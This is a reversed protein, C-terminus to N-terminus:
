CGNSSHYSGLNGPARNAVRNLVFRLPTKKCVRNRLGELAPALENRYRPDLDGLLSVAADRPVMSFYRDVIVHNLFRRVAPDELVSILSAWRNNVYTVRCSPKGDPKVMGFFDKTAQFFEASAKMQSANRAVEFVKQIEEQDRTMMTMLDAM